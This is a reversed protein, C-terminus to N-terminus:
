CKSKSPEFGPADALVDFLGPRDLNLVAGGTKNTRGRTVRPSTAERSHRRLAAVRVDSVVAGSNDTVTVRFSAKDEGTAICVLAPVKGSERKRSGIQFGERRPQRMRM